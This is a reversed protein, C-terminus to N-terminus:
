PATQLEEIHVPPDPESMERIVVEDEAPSRMAALGIEDIGRLAVVEPRDV